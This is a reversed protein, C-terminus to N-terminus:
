PRVGRIACYVCYGYQILSAAVFLIAVALFLHFTRVPMWEFFSCLLLWVVLASQIVMTMKGLYTPRIRVVQKMIGYYFAGGLLVIEKILVFLLFWLPLPLDPVPKFVLTAYCSIILLKDAIPDLCAGLDTEQHWLRALYGDLIDSIAAFIFLLMAVAWQQAVIARVLFPILAIRSLTLLTSFTLRM